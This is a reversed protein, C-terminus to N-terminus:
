FDADTKFEGKDGFAGSLQYEGVRREFFNTKGQMSILEMWDFPNAARYTPELGVAVLLRDAVFRIYEGMSDVNIGILAVPLAERVFELEVEVAERLIRTQQEAREIHQAESDNRTLRGLRFCAFDCHLGEDRSILENSFTLGPMLGRKKIWFIACFSGSFFIGEVCAFAFLRTAEDLADDELWTHAWEVKRRISPFGEVSCLLREQEAPSAIYAEILLSYMENHVNEMMVQFGYFARVVADNAQAYFRLLANEAVVGDSSAFFALVVSIFHREADQLREWDALDHALDVEHPSWFSAFQKRYWQLVEADCYKPSLIYKRVRVLEGDRNPPPTVPAAAPSSM